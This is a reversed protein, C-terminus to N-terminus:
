NWVWQVKYTGKAMGARLILRITFGTGAIISEVWCCAAWALSKHDTTTNDATSAELMFAEILSTALIAAQGTVAITGETVPTSGFDITATGTPM